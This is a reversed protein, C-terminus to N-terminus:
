VHLRQPRRRRATAAARFIAHRTAAQPDKNHHVRAVDSWAGQAESWRGTRVFVDMELAVALRLSDGDDDWPDWTRSSGPTDGHTCLADGCEWVEVGAAMAVAEFTKRDPRMPDAM